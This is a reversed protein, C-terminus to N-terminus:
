EEGKANLIRMKDDFAVEDSIHWIYDDDCAVIYFYMGNFKNIDRVIGSVMKEEEMDPFFGIMDGIQCMPETEVFDLDESFLDGNWSKINEIQGCTKAERAAKRRDLFQLKSNVFGQQSNCCSLRDLDLEKARRFCDGHSKGTVIMPNGKDNILLAAYKIM